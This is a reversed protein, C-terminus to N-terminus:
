RGCSNRCSSMDQDMSALRRGIMKGARLSSYNAQRLDGTLEDYTIGCVAAFAMAAALYVEAFQGSGKPEAFTVKEGPALYNIMGPAIRELMRKVTGGTKEGVVQGLSAQESGTSEIFASFCAETKAKVLVADMLDARDGANMLVTALLPFM